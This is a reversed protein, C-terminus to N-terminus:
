SGDRGSGIGTYWSDDATRQRSHYLDGLQVWQISADTLNNDPASLGNPETFGTLTFKIGESGTVNNGFHLALGQSYNNDAAIQNIVTTVSATPRKVNFTTSAMSQPTKLGNVTPDYTVVRGDEGYVWYFSVTEGTISTPADYRAQQQGGDTTIHVVSPTITGGGSQASLDIKGPDPSPTLLEGAM